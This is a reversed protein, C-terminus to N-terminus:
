NAECMVTLPACPVPGGGPHVGHHGAEDQPGVEDPEEGVVLIVFVKTRPEKHLDCHVHPIALHSDRRRHEERM